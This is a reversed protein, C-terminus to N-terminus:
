SQAKKISRPEIEGIGLHRLAGLVVSRCEQSSECQCALDVIEEMDNITLRRLVWKVRLINSASMSLSRYGMGILLAAFAADGAIEGCVSLGINFHELQQALMSLTHIVVPHYAQYLDAVRPNNRDVALLYQILDNSGVSIFDVREAFARAMVVAAPVEIMVGIKPMKVKYGEELVEQFARHILRLASDVEEVCTVMPLLIQLNNLGESAKLMAKVQVLLIEPHDLTVRIGRWGLFPNTERIPFYPLSKDGGVDLTRMCVERPAFCALQQRYLNVQEEESPFSDFGMFGIETRYLGVGRAGRQLALKADALFGTNALIKIYTGCATKVPQDFEANIDDFVRKEQRLFAEYVSLLRQSPNVIVEGRFADLIITEGDLTDLPLNSIGVVAPLEIARAIIAMHSNSTGRLSIVGALSERPWELLTTPSVDEGILIVSESPIKEVSKAKSVPLLRNLLKLGLDEVDSARARIYDDDVSSFSEVTHEVVKKLSSTARYGSQIGRSVEGVFADDELMNIYVDFLALEKSELQDCVQKKLSHLDQRLRTCASEFSLIEKQFNKIRREEIRKFSTHRQLVHAKAIALGQNIKAGAFRNLDGDEEAKQGSFVRSRASLAALISALQTSLTLLFREDAVSFKSASRRQVVLVGIVKKREVLPASLFSKFESEGTEELFHFNPHEHANAINLPEERQAVLGVLGQDLAVTAAGVSAPNLGVTAKLVFHQQVEELLYVSAVDSVLTKKVLQVLKLLAEDFNTESKVADLIRRLAHIM